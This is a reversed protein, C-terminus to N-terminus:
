GPFMDARESRTGLNDTLDCQQAASCPTSAPHGVAEADTSEGHRVKKQM